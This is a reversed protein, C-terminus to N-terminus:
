YSILIRSYSILLRGNFVSRNLHEQLEAPPRLKSLATLAATQAVMIRDEVEGTSHGPFTEPKMKLLAIVAATLEPNQPTADNLGYNSGLAELAAVAVDVETIKETCHHMCQLLADQVTEFRSCTPKVLALLRCAEVRIDKSDVRSDQGTACSPMQSEDGSVWGLLFDM